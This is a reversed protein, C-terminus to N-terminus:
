SQLPSKSLQKEKSGNPFDHIFEIAQKPLDIQYILEHRSCHLYFPMRRDVKTLDPCYLVHEGQNCVFGRGKVYRAKEVSRSPM